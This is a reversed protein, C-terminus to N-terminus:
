RIVVAKKAKKAKFKKVLLKFAKESKKKAMPIHDESLVCCYVDASVSKHEPWTHVSMHSEALLVLGTVGSPSFQHFTSNLLTLNSGRVVELCIKKVDEKKELNSCGFLDILFHVGMHKAM